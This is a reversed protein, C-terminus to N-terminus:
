WVVGGGFLNKYWKLMAPMVPLTYLSLFLKWSPCIKNGRKIPRIKQLVCDVAQNRNM